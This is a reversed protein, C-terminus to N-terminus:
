RVLQDNGTHIRPIPAAPRATLPAICRKPLYSIIFPTLTTQSKKIIANAKAPNKAILPLSSLVLAAPAVYKKITSATKNAQFM